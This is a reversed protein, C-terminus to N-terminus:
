TLLSVSAPGVTKLAVQFTIFAVQDSEDVKAVACAHINEQIFDRLASTAEVLNAIGFTNLFSGSSRKDSFGDLLFSRISLHLPKGYAKNLEVIM